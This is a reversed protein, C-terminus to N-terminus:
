YSSFNTLYFWYMIISKKLIESVINIYKILAQFTKLADYNLGLSRNIPRNSDYNTPPPQQKSEDETPQLM